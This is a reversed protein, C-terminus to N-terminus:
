GKRRIISAGGTHPFADHIAKPILQMTMGDEVHHWVYDKPTKSLGIAENALKADPGYKGVLGKVEVSAETHASFDPFGKDSYKIAVGDKTIYTTTGDANDIVKGGKKEWKKRNPRRPKNFKARIRVGIAAEAEAAEAAVKVEVRAAGPAIVEAARGAGAAAEGVLRGGVSALEGGAEAAIRGSARAAAGAVTTSGKAAGGAGGTGVVMAVEGVGRVVAGLPRGQNWEHVVPEALASGINKAGQWVSGACVNGLQINKAMILADLEALTFNGTMTRQVTQSILNHKAVVGVGMNALQLVSLGLDKVGGAVATVVQNTLNDVAALSAMGNQRWGPTMSNVVAQNAAETNTYTKDLYTQAGDQWGKLRKAQDIGDTSFTSALKDRQAQLDKLEQDTKPPQNCPQKNDVAPKQAVTQGTYLKGQANCVTGQCNIKVDSLHYALALNNSKVNGSGSQIIVDGAGKAVGSLTGKGANGSTGSITSNVTLVPVGRAKVNPSYVKEHSLDRFSDFPVVDKGVQCVDPTTCAAKLDAEKNAIDRIEAM